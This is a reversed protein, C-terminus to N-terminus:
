CGSRGARAYSPRTNAQRVVTVATVAAYVAVVAFLGVLASVIHRVVLTAFM